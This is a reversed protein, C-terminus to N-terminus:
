GREYMIVPSEVNMGQKGGKLCEILVMTPEKDAYPHVFRMRKPELRFRTLTNIIEALRQPRHILYFRGCSKLLAAAAKAVDEFSCFVEHRAMARTPDGSHKGDKDAMYPPNSVVADFSEREFIGAAERIDGCVVNVRGNLKNFGISKEAAAVCREQLELGTFSKGETKAALLIPIIGTGTGLDLVTEGKRIEAFDSLLVADVGFRFGDKLQYIFYGNQLDDLTLEQESLDM